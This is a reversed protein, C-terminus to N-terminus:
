SLSECCPNPIVYWVLGTAIGVLLGQSLFVQWFEKAFSASIFGGLWLVCGVYMPAKTGFHKTAINVLPAVLMAAAFNIGGIFTYDLDSTGPFRSTSIYYSLFVGYSTM